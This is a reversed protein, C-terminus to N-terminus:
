KGILIDYSIGLGLSISHIGRKYSHVEEIIEETYLNKNTQSISFNSRFYAYMFDARVSFRKYFRYSESVGIAITGADIPRESATFDIKRYVNSDKEKLDASYWDIYFSSYGIYVKTNTQFRNKNIRYCLGFLIKEVSSKKRNSESENLIFYDEQFNSLVYQHIRDSQRDQPQLLSFQGIIDIGWHESWYISSLLPQYYFGGNSYQILEDSLSGVKLKTIPIHVGGGANFTWKVYSSKNTSQGACANIFVWTLVVLAFYSLRM